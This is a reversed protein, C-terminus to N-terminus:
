VPWRSSREHGFEAQNNITETRDDASAKLYVAPGWEKQAAAIAAHM